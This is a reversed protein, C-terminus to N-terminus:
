VQVCNERQHGANYNQKGTVKTITITLLPTLRPATPPTFPWSQPRSTRIVHLAVGVALWQRSTCLSPFGCPLQILIATATRACTRSIGARSRLKIWSPTWPSFRASCRQTSSVLIDEKRLSRIAPALNASTTIGFISGSPRLCCHFYEKSEQQDITCWRHTALHWLLKTRHKLSCLPANAIVHHARANGLRKRERDFIIFSRHKRNREAIKKPNRHRLSPVFIAQNDAPTTAHIKATRM